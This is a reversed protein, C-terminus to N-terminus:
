LLVTNQTNVLGVSSLPLRAQMFIAPCDLKLFASTQDTKDEQVERIQGVLSSSLKDVINLM